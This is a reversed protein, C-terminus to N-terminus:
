RAVIARDRWRRLSESAIIYAAPWMMVLSLPWWPWPDDACIVVGDQGPGPPVMFSAGALLLVCLLSRWDL